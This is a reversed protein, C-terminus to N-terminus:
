ATFFQRLQKSLLEVRQDVMKRDTFDRKRVFLWDLWQMASLVVNVKALQEAQQVDETSIQRVERYSEIGLDWVGSSMVGYCGLLRAIDVVAVDLRMAGYDIIGSVKDEQFLVHESWIDRLCPFLSYSKGSLERTAHTIFEAHERYAQIIVVNSTCSGARAAIEDAGGNVLWDSFERRYAISRSSGMASDHEQAAQHFLALARLAAQVQGTTVTESAPRGPLWDTLDWLHNAASVVTSGHKSVVPVALPLDTNAAVSHVVQHIWTLHPLTPGHVPWKKLCFTADSHDTVKWVGAGSFGSRTVKQIERPAIEFQQLVDM